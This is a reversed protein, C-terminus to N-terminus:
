EQGTLRYEMTPLVIMQRYEDYRAWDPKNEQIFWQIENKGEHTGTWDDLAQLPFSIEFIEGVASRVPRDSSGYWRADNWNRGPVYGVNTWRDSGGWGSGISLISGGVIHIHYQKDRPYARDRTELAFYIRNGDTAVGAWIIDDGEGREPLSQRGTGAPVSFASTVETWDAKSGDVKIAAHDPRTETRLASSRASLNTGAGYAPVGTMTRAIQIGLRGRTTLNYSGTYTEDPPTRPNEYLDRWVRYRDALERRYREMFPTSGHALAEEFLPQAATTGDQRTALDFLQRDLEDFVALEDETLWPILPTVTTVEGDRVVVEQSAVPSEGDGRDQFFTLNHTGTVVREITRRDHGPDIGDIELRFPEDRVPSIEITGYTVREGSIEDVLTLALRDAADFSDFISVFSVEEAVTVRGAILEFVSVATVFGEPGATTGGYLIADFGENRALATLEEMTAVNLATGSQTVEYTGLLALAFAVSQTVVRGLEELRQDGTESSLNYVGLVPRSQGPVTGTGAVVMLAVVLVFAKKM